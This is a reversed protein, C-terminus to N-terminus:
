NKFSVTSGAHLCLFLVLKLTVFKVKLLLVLKPGLYSSVVKVDNIQMLETQIQRCCQGIDIILKNLSLMMIWVLNNCITVPLSTQIIYSFWHSKGDANWIYFEGGIVSIEIM